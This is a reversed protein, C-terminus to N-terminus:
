VTLRPLPLSPPPPPPPPGLQRTKSVGRQRPSGSGRRREGPAVQLRLLCGSGGQSQKSPPPVPVRRIQRSGGDDAEARQAPSEQSVLPFARRDIVFLQVPGAPGCTSAEDRRMHRRVIYIRLRLCSTSGLVRRVASGGVLPSQQSNVCLHTSTPPPPFTLPLLLNIMLWATLSWLLM